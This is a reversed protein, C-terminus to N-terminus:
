RIEGRVRQFQAIIGRACGTASGLPGPPGAQRKNDPGIKLSAGASRPKGADAPPRGRSLRSAPKERGTAAAITRSKAIRGRGESGGAAPRAPPQSKCGGRGVHRSPVVALRGLGCLAILRALPM